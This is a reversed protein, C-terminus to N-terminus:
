RDHRAALHAPSPSVTSDKWFESDFATRRLPKESCQSGSEPDPSPAAGWDQDASAATTPEGPPPVPPQPAAAVAAVRAAERRAAEVRGAELEAEPVPFLEDGDGDVEPLRSRRRGLDRAADALGVLVILDGFSVVQRLGPVPVVAGLWGFADADTELHRPARIDHDAVHGPEVIDAAVLAEGRVPMGNDLVVAALNLVLGVGVVAIGTVNRNAGAFAALVAISLAQALVSVDGHVSASLLALAVGVIVLSGLRLHAQAAHGGVPRRARGIALGGAAALVLLVVGV